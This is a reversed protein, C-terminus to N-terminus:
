LEGWIVAVIYVVPGLLLIQLDGPLNLRALVGLGTFLVFCIGLAMLVYSLYDMVVLVKLFM